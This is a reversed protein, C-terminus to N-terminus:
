RFKKQRFGGKNGMQARMRNAQKIQGSQKMMQDFQQIQAKINPDTINLKKLNRMHNKAANWKGKNANVAALQLEVMGKENDTNLKVSQAKKLWKEGEEMDKNNMAITSKLMYFIAKNASYLLDPFVTLNLRKEAGALDNKQIFEATSQVTGLLLYGIFLIIATLVFPLAYWFGYFTWLAIGGFFCLAMLAFRLYINITFM